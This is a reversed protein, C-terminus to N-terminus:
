SSPNSVIKDQDNLLSEFFDQELFKTRFGKILPEQEVKNVDGENKTTSVIYIPPIIDHAFEAKLDDLFDFGSKEPMNLDVFIFDPWKKSDSDAFIAKMHEVAENVEFFFVLNEKHFGASEAMERHYVHSAYDDDIFLLKSM